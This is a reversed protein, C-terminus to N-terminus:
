KLSKIREEPTVLSVIRIGFSEDVVVVEGKAVVKNNVLLDVPEGAMRDLEIISGPALELIRKISLDTRGLEISVDLDVDLLMDISERQGGATIPEGSLSTETFGESSDSDGFDTVKSLDDLEAANLGVDGLEDGGGAKMRQMIQDSVADPFIYAIKSESLEPITMEEIVMDASELAFPPNDFDFEQVEIAETSFTEGFQQGLETTLSGFIQSLLESLADKHDETYEATGEGMLMLDALRATDATSILLYMSGDFGTEFPITCMLLPVNVSTKLKEGEIATSDVVVFAVDRNLVTSMVSKGQENLLEVFNQLSPYDKGGGSDNEEGDGSNQQNLLADIQDQSLIDSM